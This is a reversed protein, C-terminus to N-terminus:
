CNQRKKRGFMTRPKYLAPSAIVVEDSVNIPMWGHNLGETSPEWHDPATKTYIVGSTKGELKCGIAFSTPVPM